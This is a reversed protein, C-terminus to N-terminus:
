APRRVPGRWALVQQQFHRALRHAPQEVVLCFLWSMVLVFALRISWLSYMLLPREMLVLPSVFVRDFLVNMPLHVLYMSYSIAGWREFRGAGLAEARRIEARLWAYAYPTAILLSVFFPIQIVSHFCLVIAISGIAMGGARWALIALGQGPFASLAGFEALRAGALWAPLGVIWNLSWSFANLSCLQNPGVLVVVAAAALASTVLLWTWGIRARLWLLAPYITYYIEECVLSWLISGWLVSLVGLLRALFGAVIVPILIRLHRRAYFSPLDITRAARFPYHICFGSIVFFMLVAAAGNVVGNFASRVLVHFAAAPGPAWGSHSLVVWFALGFRLADIGPIRRASL